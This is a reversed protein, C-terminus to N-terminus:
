KKVIKRVTVNDDRDRLRVLYLGKPLNAVDIVNSAAVDSSMMKYGMMNYIEVNCIDDGEIMLFDDAPNPYLMIEKKEVLTEVNLVYANAPFIIDDIWCRDKGATNKPSKDYFWELEHTGAEVPYTVRQWDNEGSWRGMMEGDVFFALFDKGEETSTKFYFSIKGDSQAEIDIYLSSVENDNVAGSQASYIGTNAEENTITWPMMDDHRWNISSFDATEFSERVNGITFRLNEQTTYNGSSVVVEMDVVTGEPADDAVTFELATMFNAAAELRDIHHEDKKFVIYENDTTAKIVINDCASLGKNKGMVHIQVTEGVDVSGNSNGNSDDCNVKNFHLDPALIKYRLNQIYVNDGDTLQLVFYAYEANRVDDDVKLTFADNVIKNSNAEILSIEVENEIIEVIDDSTTTLSMTMDDINEIGINYLNLNIKVNEGYDLRGNSNGENDNIIINDAYVYNTNEDVGIVDFTQYWANPGTVVLRLTDAINLPEAFQLRAEGDDNTMGFALLQNEFFLSCRFNSQGDSDKEVNVYTSTTGLPLAPKYLVEPIFPEDLWPSIAVDGLINICYFNWRLASNDQGYFNVLPATMMKMEVFATGIYPLRDNYYADVLERNLHRAPGDGWPIYWGYRSNGTVTVFGNPMNILKELICTTSFDGCICGHSHFFNYNHNVGDLQHFSTEDTNMLDWGAVYDFNAHGVHYVYGGGKKNIFDRFGSGSWLFDPSAYYRHFMYDKPIGITTYDDEDQEGILLELDNKGYYGDGLHEAGLVIDNFEGLVPNSQYTIIKHMMNNFQSENNFPLRAIALEPLLDDEGVEGWLTDNDNNWTGDLCVYYMDAPINHDEHDHNVYCYFGRYPVLKTDGGLLVMIVGEEEYEKSIFTRIKEQEDRGESSSYIDELATVKTRLGREEYFAKYEDFHSVWEEPTVVLLEYGGITKVGRGEYSSLTETNHALRQIREKHEPTVKLMKSNDTRTTSYTVKVKVTKAYSLKGTSPLYRVPTFGSMAVSYGNLFHTKVDSMNRLPYIADSSYINENKLFPLDRTDSLPRPQQYPYIHHEGEIEVFDSFEYEIDKAETNFPLLLSVTQWPLSPNGDDAMQVSGDFTVIEYGDYSEFRPMDFHYTKEVSQASLSFVMM